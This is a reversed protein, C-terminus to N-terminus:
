YCFVYLINWLSFYNNWIVFDLISSFFFFSVPLLFSLVPQIAFRKLFRKTCIIEHWLNPPM